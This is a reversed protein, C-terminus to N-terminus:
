KNIKYRVKITKITDILLVVRYCKRIVISPFEAVPTSINSRRDEWIIFQGVVYFFELMKGQPSLTLKLHSIM